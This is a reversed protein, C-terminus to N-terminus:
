FKIVICVKKRPSPNSYIYYVRFMKVVITGYCLSYGIATFWPNLNCLVSVDTRDTSPIVLLIMDLYLIIAGICIINNLNPSSLRILRYSISPSLYVHLVALAIYYSHFM